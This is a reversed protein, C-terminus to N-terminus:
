DTKSTTSAAPKSATTTDSSKSDSSKSESSKSDGSKSDGPKSDSKGGKSSDGGSEKRPTSGSKAYDTIYFGSGKFHLGSTSILREVAGGCDDHVTVPPDSFKQLKEFVKDCKSCRYEYLPM